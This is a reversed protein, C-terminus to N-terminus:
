TGTGVEPMRLQSSTPRRLKAAYVILERMNHPNGIATGVPAGINSPKRSGRQTDEVRKMFSKSASISISLKFNFNIGRERLHQSHQPFEASSRKM